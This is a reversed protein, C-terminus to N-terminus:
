NADFQAWNKRFHIMEWGATVQAMGAVVFGSWSDSFMPASLPGRGSLSIRARITRYMSVIGPKSRSASMGGYGPLVNLPTM